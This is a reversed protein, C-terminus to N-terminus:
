SDSLKQWPPKVSASRGANEEKRKRRTIVKREESRGLSTNQPINGIVVNKVVFVSLVDRSRRQVIRM